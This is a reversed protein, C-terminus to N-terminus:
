CLRQWACRFVEAAQRCPWRDNEMSPGCGLYQDRDGASALHLNTISPHGGADEAAGGRIRM